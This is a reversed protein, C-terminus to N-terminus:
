TMTQTVLLLTQKDTTQPKFISLQWPTNTASYLQVVLHLLKTALGVDATFM